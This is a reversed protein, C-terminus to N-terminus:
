ARRQEGHRSSAAWLALLGAGTWLLTAIRWDALDPVARWYVAREGTTLIATTRLTATRATLMADLGYRGEVLRHVARSPADTLWRVSLQASAADAAVALIAYSLVIGIVWRLPHRSGLAFASGLLYSATAATFPVVGISPGPAWGVARLVAPDLTGAVAVGPTLVQLTEPPAVSGGSALTLGLLWLAVLAVGGMLWVWGALVKIFAHRRRDVPVTWLFSPGFREDRAWVVIPLLAGMLAPLMTPWEYLDIVAGMSARQLAVVITILALLAATILAAGRLALGTARVHELLVTRSRPLPPRAGRARRARHEATNFAPATSM